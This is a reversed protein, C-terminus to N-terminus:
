VGILSLKIKKKIWEIIMLEMPIGDNLAPPMILCQGATGPINFKKHKLKKDEKILTFSGVSFSIFSYGTM